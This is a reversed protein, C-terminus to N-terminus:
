NFPTIRISVNNQYLSDVIANYTALLPETKEKRIKKKIARREARIEKLDATKQAAVDDYFTDRKRSDSFLSFKLGSEYYPQLNSKEKIDKTDFPSMKMFMKAFMSPQWKWYTWLLLM